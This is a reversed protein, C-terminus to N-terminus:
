RNIKSYTIAPKDEKFSMFLEKMENNMQKIIEQHIESKLNSKNTNCPLKFENEIFITAMTGFRMMSLTVKEPIISSIKQPPEFNKVVIRESILGELRRLRLDDTKLKISTQMMDKLLEEYREYSNELIKPIYRQIKKENYLVKLHEDEKIESFDYVYKKCLITDLLAKHEQGLRGKIILKGYEGEFVREKYEPQITPEFLTFMNQNETIIGMEKLQERLEPIKVTGILDEM